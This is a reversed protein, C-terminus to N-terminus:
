IWVHKQEPWNWEQFFMNMLDSSVPEKKKITRSLM